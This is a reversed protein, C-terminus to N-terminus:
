QGAFGRPRSSVWAMVEEENWGVSRAGLRIRKPFRGAKEMRYLTSRCFGLMSNVEPFKLIKM